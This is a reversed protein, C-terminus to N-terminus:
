YGTRLRLDARGLDHRDPLLADPIDAHTILFQRERYFAAVTRCGATYMELLRCARCASTM